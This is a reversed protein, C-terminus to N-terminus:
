GGIDQMQSLKMQPFRDLKHTISSLRKIRQAVLPNDSIQRAKGRLGNQMTNLPFSHSSRWNNIVGLAAIYEEFGVSRVDLLARGAANVQARRYIPTTWPM